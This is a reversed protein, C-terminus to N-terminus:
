LNYVGVRSRILMEIRELYYPEDPDVDEVENLPNALCRIHHINQDIPAGIHGFLHHTVPTDSNENHERLVNSLGTNGRRFQQNEIQGPGFALLDVFPVVHSITIIREIGKQNSVSELRRALIRNQEDSFTQYNVAMDIYELDREPFDREENNVDEFSYDWWGIIGVFATKGYIYYEREHLPIVTAKQMIRAISELKYSSDFGPCCGRREEERWLDYNGPIGLKLNALIEQFKIMSYYYYSKSRALDGAYVFVDPNEENIYEILYNLARKKKRHSLNM